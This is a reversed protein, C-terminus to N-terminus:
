SHRPQADRQDYLQILQHVAQSRKGCRFFGGGSFSPCVIWQQDKDQREDLEMIGVLGAVAGEWRSLEWYGASGELRWQKDVNIVMTKM